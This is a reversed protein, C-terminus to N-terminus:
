AGDPAEKGRNVIWYSEGRSLHQVTWGPPYEEPFQEHYCGPPGYHQGEHFYCTEVHM